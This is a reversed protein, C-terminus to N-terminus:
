IKEKVLNEIKLLLDLNEEFFSQTKEVGVGLKIGDCSYTNGAKEIIGLDIANKIIDATKDIGKGFITDFKYIRFPTFTKNKLTKFTTITGCTEDDDKKLQKSLEIITDASFKLAHGGQTTRPDGFMVGIKERFQSVVVCCSHGNHAAVKLKPYAESNLSAKRGITSAGMESEMVRKPKLSSDSDIVVLDIGMKMMKEAIDFGEEGTDPQAILMDDLNVGLQSFYQADLAHEGDIYLTKMGLAQANAILHGCLTTKNSNHVVFGDAVFNNYPDECSIDYTDRFGVSQISAIEDKVAIFRLNNHDKKAHLQNHSTSDIMELNSVDNNSTNEDIHHIHCNEPITVWNDPLKECDNLIELYQEYSIGNMNAEYTLRHVSCRYFLSGEINRQTGNYYYKVHVGKYKAREKKGKHTTNNHIYVSDGINLEGLPIYEEGNFFKHSETAVIRNGSKSTMLFCEKKGSRWVNKIRNRIIRNEENISVVNFETEKTRENRNHFRNFLQKITGGKCDQVVGDKRVNIFKIYTEEDLCGEWGRIEYMKGKAFGGIGLAKYDIGICGTPIVDYQGIAKVGPAFVSGTGYTKNLETVLEEINQPQKKDEKAM